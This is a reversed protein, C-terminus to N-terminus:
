CRQIRMIKQVSFIGVCEILLSCANYSYIYIYSTEHPKSFPIYGITSDGGNESVGIQPLLIQNNSGGHSMARLCSRSSHRANKSAASVTPSPFPNTQFYHIGWFPINFSSFSSVGHCAMSSFKLTARKQSLGMESPLRSLVWSSFGCTATKPHMGSLLHTITGTIYM